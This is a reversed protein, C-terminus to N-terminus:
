FKFGLGIVASNMFGDSFYSNSLYAWEYEANLYINEKISIMLGGGAGGYFGADSTDFGGGSEFTVDYGSFHMGLAGKIFFQAKGEGFIVKPQYYIPWSNLKVDGSKDEGSESDRVDDASTGIYGFSLGHSIKGGNPIFEYVGSIRWGSADSDSAELNAWAWGGNISFANEQANAALAGVFLAIFLLYKKM